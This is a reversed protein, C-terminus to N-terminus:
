INFDFDDPLAFQSVNIGINSDLIPIFPVFLFSVLIPSSRTGFLSIIPFSSPLQEFIIKNKVPPLHNPGIKIFKIKPFLM